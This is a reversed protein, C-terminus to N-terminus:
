SHGLQSVPRVQRAGRNNMQLEDSILVNSASDRGGCDHKSVFPLFVFHDSVNQRYRCEGGQQAEGADASLGRSTAATALM